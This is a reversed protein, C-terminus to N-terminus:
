RPWRGPPVRGCTCTPQSLSALPMRSARSHPHSRSPRALFALSSLPAVPSPPTHIHLAISTCALGLLSLPSLYGDARDSAYPLGLFWVAVPTVAGLLSPLLYLHFDGGGALLGLMGRTAFNPLWAGGSLLLFARARQELDSTTPILTCGSAILVENSAASPNLIAGAASSFALAALTGFALAGCVLGGLVSIHLLTNLEEHRRAALAYGVRITMADELFSFVEGVPTLFSQMALQAARDPPGLNQQISMPMVTAEVIVAFLAGTVGLTALLAMCASSSRSRGPAAPAPAPASPGSAPASTSASSAPARWCDLCCKLVFPGFFAAAVLLPVKNFDSQIADTTTCCGGHGSRLCGSINYVCLPQQFGMVKVATGNTVITGNDYYAFPSSNPDFRCTADPSAHPRSEM